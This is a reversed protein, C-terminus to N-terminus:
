LRSQVLAFLLAAHLSLFCYWSQPCQRNGKIVFISPHPQPSSLAVSCEKSPTSSFLEHSNVEVWYCLSGESWKFFTNFGESQTLAKLSQTGKLSILITHLFLEWLHTENNGGFAITM